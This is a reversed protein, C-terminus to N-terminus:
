INYKLLFDGVEPSLKFIWGTFIFSNDKIYDSASKTPLSNTSLNVRMWYEGNNEYVEIGYILGSELFLIIVRQPNDNKLESADYNEVGIFTFAILEELLNRLDVEQQQSNYFPSNGDFRFALQQAKESQLIVTEISEPMIQLLPQQLWSYLKQPLNFDGSVLFSIKGNTRRAYQLGNKYNGIIVSDVKTDKNYTELLYGSNKTDKNEPFALNMEPTIKNDVAEITANNMSLLLSNIIILGGYYDDSEEVQWYDDKLTLTAQYNNNKIIIKNIDLAQNYTKDFLRTGIESSKYESNHKLLVVFAFVASLVAIILAIILAKKNM